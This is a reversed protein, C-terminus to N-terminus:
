KESVDNKDFSFNGPARLNEGDRNTKKQYAKIGSHPM